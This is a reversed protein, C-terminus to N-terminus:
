VDRREDGPEGAVVGLVHVALHEADAAARHPQHLPPVRDALRLLAALPVRGLEPLLELGLERLARGALLRHVVDERLAESSLSPRRRMRMTQWALTLRLMMASARKFFINASRPRSSTSTKEPPM